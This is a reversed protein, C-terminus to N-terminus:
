VDSSNRTQDGLVSNKLIKQMLGHVSTRIAKDNVQICESLTPSLSSVEKFDSDDLEALADLIDCIMKAMHEMELALGPSSGNEVDMAEKKLYVDVLAKFEDKLIGQVSPLSMLDGNNIKPVLLRMMWKRAYLANETYQPRFM